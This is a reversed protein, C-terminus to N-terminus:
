FLKLLENGVILLIKKMARTQSVAPLARHAGTSSVSCVGTEIVFTAGPMVKISKPFTAKPLRISV